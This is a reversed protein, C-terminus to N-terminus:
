FSQSLDMQAILSISLELVTVKSLEDLKGTDEDHTRCSSLDLPGWRAGNIRDSFCQRKITSNGEYHYKCRVEHYRSTLITPFWYEGKYDAQGYM